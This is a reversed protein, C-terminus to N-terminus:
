PPTLGRNYRIADAIKVVRAMAKVDHVRVMDAGKLISATVAAATAELREEPPEGGLLLGLTSKRSPGFLIPRGLVKLEWLRRTIEINHIPKKGFGFGPDILLRERAIGSALAFDIRERFFSLLEGMVDRYVPNRQMTRPKGRMHMLVVPVKLRAVTKGMRPDLKLAGIDNVLQAGEGVAAAAVEAKYTDVSLPIRLAKACAKLVPLIRKKEEIVSIAKAGPRTSEGGVDVWDAGEEQMQLAREVAIEPNLFQGGDAFSDPTVNLIGMILTQGSWGFRRGGRGRFERTRDQAYGKLGLNVQRSLEPFKKFFKPLLFAQRLSIVWQTNFTKNAGLRISRAASLGMLIKQLRIAAIRSSFEASCVLERSSSSPRSLDFPDPHIVRFSVGSGPPM